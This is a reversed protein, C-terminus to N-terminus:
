RPEASEDVVAALERLRPLALSSLREQRVQSSVALSDKWLSRGAMAGSAGNAVAIEVQKIFTEHDVGASLVAWPVGHRPRPSPLAPRPRAPTRCSSCRPAARSPSARAARRGAAPVRGPVGGRDRGGAPLHPDRRDPAPGGGRVGQGPRPDRRRRALRRDQRDPRMYWLMKAVDGGLERVRRRSATSSTRSRLGDVTEFGSADMGVVLATDRALTATTSSRRCPSRPTSCSRPLTTARPLPGPRVERRGATGSDSLRATRPTPVDRGEHRQAPRRRRDAHPWRRDLDRVHWAQELTTLENM